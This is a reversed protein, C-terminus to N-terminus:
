VNNKQMQKEWLNLHLNFSNRHHHECMSTVFHLFSWLHGSVFIPQFVNHTFLAKYNSKIISSVTPWHYHHKTVRRDRISPNKLNMQSHSVQQRRPWWCPRVSWRKGSVKELLPPLSAPQPVETQVYRRELVTTVHRPFHTHTHPPPLPTSNYCSRSLPPLSRPPTWVHYVMMFCDGYLKRAEDTIESFM